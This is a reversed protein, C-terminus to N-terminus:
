REAMPLVGQLEPVATGNPVWLMSLCAGTLIEPMTPLGGIFDRAGGAAAIGMPLILLPRFVTIGFNGATGTTALVTTSAVAQVGTDGAALPMLITRCKEQFGAGGFTAAVTAQAATGAQNTYSATITTGTGGIATYIEALIWNGPCTGNTAYRTMTGAVTQATTVTGSLGGIHLLRDGIILTGSNLNSAVAGFLWKQRGGTPDTQALAGATARTPAAVTTPAVGPGPQGDHLWLSHLRGAAMTPGAAGAVRGNKHYWINEPLGSNGGTGRNIVESLDAFAAM